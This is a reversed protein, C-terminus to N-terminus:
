SAGLRRSLTRLAPRRSRPPNGRGACAVLGHPEVLQCVDLELEQVSMVFARDRDDTQKQEIRQRERRAKKEEEIRVKEAEEFDKVEQAQKEELKRQLDADAEKRAQEEEARADARLTLWVILAGLVGVILLAVIVWKLFQGVAMWREHSLSDSM